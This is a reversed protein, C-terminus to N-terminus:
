FGCRNRCTVMNSFHNASVNDSSVYGNNTLCIACSNVDNSSCCGSMYSSPPPRPRQPIFAYSATDNGANCCFADISPYVMSNMNPARCNSGSYDCFFDYPQGYPGGSNASCTGTVMSNAYVIGGQASGAYQSCPPRYPVSTTPVVLEQINPFSPIVSRLNSM